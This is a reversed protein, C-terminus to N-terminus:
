SRWTAFEAWTDLAGVSGFAGLANPTVPANFGLPAEPLLEDLRTAADDDTVEVLSVRERTVECTDVM